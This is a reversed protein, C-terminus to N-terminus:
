KSDGTPIYGLQKFAAIIRRMERDRTTTYGFTPIYGLQKCAQIIERLKRHNKQSRKRQQERYVPDSNYRKHKRERQRAIVVPDTWRKKNYNRKYKKNYESKCNPCVKMNPTFNCLSTECAICRRTLKNALSREQRRNRTRDITRESSCNRCMKTNPYPNHIRVMCIM